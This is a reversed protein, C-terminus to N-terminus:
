IKLFSVKKIKHPGIIALNLKEPCFIDNAVRKIDMKSVKDIKKFREELSVIKNTLVEQMGFFLAKADTSEMGITSIGKIYEKAKKLEDDPVIEEKLKKYNELIIKATKELNNHAVGAQTFLSGTDLYKSTATRVYYALGRKERIELFLRSSMNGGLIVSMVDLVYRDKHFLDYTKVGLCLHTQDTEKFNIFSEPKKQIEKIKIPNNIKKRGIKLFYRKVLKWAEEKKFNGSIVIVLNESSYYNQYYDVMQQIKMKKIIEEKGLGLRGLPQEGYLLKEWLDSIFSMPTDLYMKIEELIVGKERELDEEKLLPSIILESVWDIATEIHSKDVKAHFGTIEKDTFANYDGGIKDLVEILELPTKRKETGKFVMHELFHSVGNNKETEYRSGIRVLGLVTVSNVNKDPVLILRVKNPLKIKEFFM